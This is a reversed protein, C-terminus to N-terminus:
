NNRRALREMALTSALNIVSIALVLVAATAYAKELSLGERAMQYFHVSLTRTGEYVSRPARHPLSSGATFILAATEGIARGVGLILGTVIGPLAAPLVVKRITQWKSAGLSLSVERYATPVARLAEESTRILLPLTMFALTLAGALISWGLGLTLVFLIFGFLGFIISPVGALCDAGFRILGTLRGARTYEVLYIATGVGLPAAVAIGLLTVELTGVVVPMVGGARGSDLPAALLFTPTVHPLGHGLIFALIFALIAGTAVMFSWLVTWALAQARGPTLWALTPWGHATMRVQHRRHRRRRVLGALANLAIVIMFLVIATAFLAARHDGTAYGMELALNATLTRLPDLPSRPLMVANGAVMVVAMTEGIARGIALIVAAVIGSRAAPLVVRRITQWTTAGMALSGERYTYPVARLADLSIAVVTPLIMVGLIASAALGSAGPGGLHARIWPLVVAIGVFGYVVSPIGALIEILPKLIDRARPPAIEGLVIACGLGLPVGFLLAGATVATSGVVMLAIGFQGSTPHWDASLFHALGVKHILPAGERVVFFAISLLVGISSSALLLLGREVVKEPLVRPSM